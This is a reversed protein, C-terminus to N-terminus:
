DLLRLYLKLVGRLAQNRHRGVFTWLYFVIEMEKERRDGEQAKHNSELLQLYCEICELTNGKIRHTTSVYICWCGM